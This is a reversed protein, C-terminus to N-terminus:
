GPRLAKEIEELQKPFASKAARMFAPIRRAEFLDAGTDGLTLGLLTVDPRLGLLADAREHMTEMGAAAVTQLLRVKGMRGARTRYQSLSGTLKVYVIVLRRRQEVGSARDLDWKRAISWLPVDETTSGDIYPVVRDGRQIRRPVFLLPVASSALAAEQPDTQVLLGRLHEAVPEPTLVETRCDALNFAICYLPRRPRLTACYHQLMRSIGDTLDFFGAADDGPANLLADRMLNRLVQFRSPRLSLAYRGSYVDYGTQEIAQPSLGHSYLVAVVAGGSSGWIEEIHEACGIGELLRLVTSHAFLKLGGSGLSLVLKTEPDLCLERIARFREELDASPESAEAPLVEWVYSRRGGRQDLVFGGPPVERNRGLFRVHTEVGVDVREESLLRALVALRVEEPSPDFVAGQHPLSFRVPLDGAHVTRLIRYATGLGDLVPLDLETVWYSGDAAQFRLVESTVEPAAEGSRPRTQIRIQFLRQLGSGWVETSQM